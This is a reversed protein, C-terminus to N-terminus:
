HCFAPWLLVPLIQAGFARHRLKAGCDFGLDFVDFYEALFGTLVAVFQM